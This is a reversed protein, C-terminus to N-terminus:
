PGPILNCLRRQRGPTQQPRERRRPASVNPVRGPRWPWALREPTSVRSARRARDPRGCGARRAQECFPGLADDSRLVHDLADRGRRPQLFDRCEAGRSLAAACSPERLISNTGEGPRTPPPLRAASTAAPSLGRELWRAGCSVVTVTSPPGSPHEPAKLWGWGHDRSPVTRAAV